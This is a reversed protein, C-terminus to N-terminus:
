PSGRDDELSTRIQCGSEGIVQTPYCLKSRGGVASLGGGGADWEQMRGRGMWGKAETQGVSWGVGTLGRRGRGAGLAGAAVGRRADQAISHRRRDAIEGAARLELAANAVCRLLSTM